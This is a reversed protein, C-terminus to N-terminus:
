GTELKARSSSSVPARQGQLKKNGSAGTNLIESQLSGEPFPNEWDLSPSSPSKSPLCNQPPALLLNQHSWHPFRGSCRRVECTARFILALSHRGQPGLSHWFSPPSHLLALALLKPTHAGWPRLLSPQKPYLTGPREKSFKERSSPWQSPPHSVQREKRDWKCCQNQKRLLNKTIFCVQGRASRDRPSPLSFTWTEASTHPHPDAGEM